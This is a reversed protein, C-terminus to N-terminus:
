VDNQEGIQDIWKLRDRQGRGDVHRHGDDVLPVGDHGSLFCDPGIRFLSFLQGNVERGDEDERQDDIKGLKEFQSPSLDPLHRKENRRRQSRIRIVRNKVDAPRPQDEPLNKRVREEDKEAVFNVSCSLQRGALSIVLSM